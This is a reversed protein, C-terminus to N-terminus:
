ATQRIGVDPRILAAVLKYCFGEYPEGLSVTIFNEGTEYEGDPGALYKREAVPDTVRLRYNVGRYSFDAQVRRRPNGFDMGPAFIRLKVKKLQLLFLSNSLNEADPQSVRDNLGNYTSSNNTWLGMPNDAFEELDQWKIKGSRVWYADPDLLWNETQFSRPQHRTLPVDIVDLVQPDSGDEYQREHESVEEWPRNSVPRVWPGARNETWEKGAICRGSLKRSNALCVIRKTVAM